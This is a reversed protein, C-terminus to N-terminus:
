HMEAEGLPTGDPNAYTYIVDELVLIVPDGTELTLAYEMGKPTAKRGTLLEGDIETCLRQFLEHEDTSYGDRVIGEGAYFLCFGEGATILPDGNRNRLETTYGMGTETRYVSTLWLELGAGSWMLEGCSLSEGAEMLPFAYTFAPVDESLRMSYDLTVSVSDMAIASIPKDYRDSVVGTVRRPAADDMSLFGNLVSETGDEYRITFEGRAATDWAGNQALLADPDHLNGMVVNDTLPLFSVYKEGTLRIQEIESSEAPSLQVEVPEGVPETPNGRMPQITVVTGEATVPIPELPIAEGNEWDFDPANKRTYTYCGLNSNPTRRFFLFGYKEGNVWLDPLEQLAEQDQCYLWLMLRNEEPDTENETFVIGELTYQGVATREETTYVNVGMDTYTPVIGYGPAFLWEKAAWGVLSLLVVAVATILMIKRMNPKTHREPMWALAEEIIDEPLMGIAHWYKEEGTM